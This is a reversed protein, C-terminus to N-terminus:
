ISCQDQYLSLSCEKALYLFAKNPIYKGELDTALLKTEANTKSISGGLLSDRKSGAEKTEEVM